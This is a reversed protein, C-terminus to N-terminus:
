VLTAVSGTTKVATTVPVPVAGVPVGLENTKVTPPTADLQGTVTAPERTADQTTVNGAVTEPFTDTVAIYLPSVM